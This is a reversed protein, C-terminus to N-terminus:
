NYGIVITILTYLGKSGKEKFFFDWNFPNKPILSREDFEPNLMM